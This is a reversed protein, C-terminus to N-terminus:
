YSRERVQRQSATRSDPLHFAKNICNGALLFLFWIVLFEECATQHHIQKSKSVSSVQEVYSEQHQYIQQNESVTASSTKTTSSTTSTVQEEVSEVAQLPVFYFM